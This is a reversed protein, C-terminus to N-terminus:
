PVHEQATAYDMTIDIDKFKDVMPKFKPDLHVMQIQFWAQYYVRFKNDFSKNLISIKRETIDQITIFKITKSITVLFIQGRIYM